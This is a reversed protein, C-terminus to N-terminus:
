LKSLEILAKILDPQAEISELTEEVTAECEIAISGINIDDGRANIVQCGEFKFNFKM